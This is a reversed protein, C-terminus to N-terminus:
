QFSAYYNLLAKVDDPSLKEMKPKMKEPMLRKGESYEEFQEELYPTWQGALIGADDDTSSGGDGHCKECHLDHLSKGKEVLAADFAQKAHVFPKEAYHDALAQADEDSLGEVAKCMDGTEGKHPGAPYKVKDCERSKEHYATITDSIYTASIGGITPIKPETSAGDKGHCDDCAATLKGIDAARAEGICLGTLIILLAPVISLPINKITNMDEGRLGNNISLAKIIRHKM